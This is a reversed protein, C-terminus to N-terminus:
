LGLRKAIEDASMNKTSKNKASTATVKIPKPLPKNEKKKPAVLKQQIKYIEIAADIPSMKTIKEFEDLKDGNNAGFYDVIQPVNGKYAMSVIADEVQPDVNVVKLYSEFEGKSSKYRPNVKLYEAEQENAIRAREEQIKRVSEMQQRQAIEAEKAKIKQEAKWDSLAENYEELAEFDAINPQKKEEVAKSKELADQREKREKELAEQLRNYAAVQRANKKELSEREKELRDLQQEVTEEEQEEVEGDDPSETEEVEDQIEPEQEQVDEVIVDTEAESATDEVIVDTM